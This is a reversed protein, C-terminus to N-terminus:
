FTTRVWVRGKFRVRGMVQIVSINLDKVRTRLRFKVYVTFKDRLDSQNIPLHQDLFMHYKTFDREGLVNASIDTIKANTM